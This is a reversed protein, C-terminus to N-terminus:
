RIPANRNGRCTDPSTGQPTQRQVGGELRQCHDRDPTSKAQDDFPFGLDDFRVPAVANSTFAQRQGFGRDYAKDLEDVNGAAEAALDGICEEESAVTVAALVAVTRLDIQPVPLAECAVMQNRERATTVVLPGVHDSGAACAVRPLSVMEGFFTAHM